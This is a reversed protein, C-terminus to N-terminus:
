KKISYSVNSKPLEYKNYAVQRLNITHRPLEGPTHDDTIIYSNQKSWYNKFYRIYVMGVSTKYFNGKTDEIFELPKLTEEKTKWIGIYYNNWETHLADIKRNCWDIDNIPENIVKVFKRATIDQATNYSKMGVAFLKKTINSLKSGNKTTIITQVYREGLYTLIEGCVTEYTTGIVYEKKPIIVETRKSKISMTENYDSEKRLVRAQGIIFSGAIKNGTMVVNENILFKLFDRFNLDYITMNLLPSYLAVGDTTNYSKAQLEWDNSVQPVIKKKGSVFPKFEDLNYKCSSM